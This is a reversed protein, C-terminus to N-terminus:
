PAAAAPSRAAGTPVGSIPITTVLTGSPYDYVDVGYNDVNPVYIEDEAKNIASRDPLEVSITASPSTQGLPYTLIESLGFDSVILYGDDVIVGAPYDLGTLGLNKGAGRANAFKVVAPGSSVRKLSTVYLNNSAGMAVGTVRYRLAPSRLRRIPSTAGPPYVNIGGKLDGAYVYGNRGVAVDLPGDSDTLTLSPTTAGPPYVTITGNQNAVYLNRHRDTTLGDPSTIGDTIQGVFSYKPVSFIDIAEEGADSVYLLKKKKKIDPSM